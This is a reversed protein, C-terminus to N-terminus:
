DVGETSASLDDLFREIVTKWPPANFRRDAHRLGPAHLFTVPCGKAKLAAELLASQGPDVLCDSDGHLLLFPPESGDIWSAPNASAVREPALRIPAGILRAHPSKPSQARMFRPGCPAAQLFDTPPYLAVVGNPTAKEGGEAGDEELGKDGATGLMCALHGGSSVGFAFMRRHDLGLAIANCRLWRMAARVDHLQAPWIATGSPRYDASALAYGRAIQALAVPEIITRDGASWGGGHLFLITPLFSGTPDPKFLDLTLNSGGRQAYIHTSSRLGSKKLNRKCAIANAPLALLNQLENYVLFVETSDGSPGAGLFIVDPFKLLFDTPYVFLM